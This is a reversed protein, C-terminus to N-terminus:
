RKMRRLSRIPSEWEPSRSPRDRFPRSPLTFIESRGGTNLAEHKVPATRTNKYVAGYGIKKGPGAHVSMMVCAGGM